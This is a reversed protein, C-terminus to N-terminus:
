GYGLYDVPEDIHRYRRTSWRRYFSEGDHEVKDDRGHEAYKALKGMFTDPKGKYDPYHDINKVPKHIQNHTINQGGTEM